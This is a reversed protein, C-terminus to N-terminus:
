SGASGSLDVCLLYYEGGHAKDECRIYLRKRSLVPGTWSPYKMEPYKVRSTQSFKEPDVPVLALAGREGLVILNGQAMIASGRGYWKPEISSAGDRPNVLEAGEEEDTMWKVEGTAWDICRMSSPVEHRGSFGYLYGDHYVPTTWHARMSDKNKWVEEVSQGDAGVQLLVSGVGYAASLFIQDDVVIPMAANVSDHIRSRFYYAFNIKGTQPDLSVLGPRMLALLHRKGQIERVVLSSYSALKPDDAGPKGKMDWADTGVNEWIIDGTLADFAVVGANPQGGVMVILLNDELIPTSGVGFFAQPIDFEENTDRTWLIEGDELKLCSLRGNSGFTFVRDQTVLPTCRPGNSYGYPDRFDTPFTERWLWEGTDATYCEVVDENGQRHFLVLHNGMISPAAYGSGVRMKWLVPPGDAPWEDLLGTEQSISDSHLGLFQPWDEGSRETEPSSGAVYPERPGLVISERKKPKKSDKKAKAAKDAATNDVTTVEADGDDGGCGLLSTALFLGLLAVTLSNRYTKATM